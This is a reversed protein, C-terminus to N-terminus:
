RSGSGQDKLYSREKETLADLGESNIKDLIRDLERRIRARKAEERAAQAEAMSARFAGARRKVGYLWRERTLYVYGIALGGLHAFRAVPADPMQWIMVLEIGAALVAFHKAKMRILFMFLIEREPFVMAFGVILGFIAGSAGITPRTLSPQVLVSVLGAGCGTIFYYKLFERRGWFRELESGLMWLFLMNLLIHLLDGHLFLYTVLQWVYGKGLVSAPVLGLQGMYRDLFALQLLFVGINLILLYKVASTTRPVSSRAYTQYGGRYLVRGGRAGVRLAILVWAPVRIL